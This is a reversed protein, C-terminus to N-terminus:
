TLSACLVFFKYVSTVVTICRMHIISCPVGCTCYLVEMCMETWRLHMDRNKSAHSIDAAKLSMQMALMRHDANFLNFECMMKDFDNMFHAHRAMDTALIMTIVHRRFTHRQKASFDELINFREQGLIRFLSHCHYHELVSQDNYRKAVGANARIQFSNTTGPHGIDHAAAALLSTFIEMSTMSRMFAVNSETSFFIHMTHLVDAGHWANHYPNPLYCKEM